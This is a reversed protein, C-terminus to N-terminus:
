ASGQVMPEPFHANRVAPFAVAHHPLLGAAQRHAAQREVLGGSTPLGNTHVIPPEDAGSDERCRAVRCVLQGEPTLWRERRYRVAETRLVLDQVLFDQYGQFRSGPPVTARLVREQVAVKGRGRRGRHQRPLKPESAQEMGSPKMAPRGKLGKLRAIEERQAAVTRELAAVKGLLAIVVAKSEARSLTDPDVPPVM